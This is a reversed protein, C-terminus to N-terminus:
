YAPRWSSLAYVIRGKWGQLLWHGDEDIVFDKHYSLKVRNRAIRMVEKDVPLQEFGARMNRVQWQKYTEPREIREAAECAIVNMAERGFVTKELLMREHIERPINADLMDFFSSYHFLAERFRTIFFPANYAGNVVGLVFVAPNMKRILNLVINRPSNVIVTEDLLNRFRYLCNVVLLEDEKIKLDELKITEWKQAIANFEFPVKFTEAYSALRRGTEEVRESPRFGPCPLDIGTVRLKPPGGPRSSLRQLFCPWQFGYLIGFDIIHLKTVKEAVNMITKNSFFNSIKRFPCTALYIHYAKLIDAASTPMNILSTYIQTGSGAMRAELGDAFYHALRQMGDGTPTAHQRIQKLFDNATRRDDAAVAQACLTLLTRMDVVNRKGGKKKAGSKGGNSGKSQDNQPTSKTVENLAKRLDSENKGGSCLLVKDFMDPSVTSETYVASQKNSREDHLSMSDQYPNKKGRSGDVFEVNATKKEVKVVLSVSGEKQEKGSLEDYGLDVILNSGNPLFKSAEEVGKKFQIASLGDTFVDPIRLTSVPSDIPGEIITGSSSSSSYSSQSTSVVDVADHHGYFRNSNLDFNWDPCFTETDGSGCCDNSVGFIKEDPSAFSHALKPVHEYDASAPYKEGIVEYFSREAAQLAASEQFMCAKEEVDEEMLIHNIYKLVVDSFDLDEPSEGEASQVQADFNLHSSVPIVDAHSGTLFKNSVRVNNILNQGPFLPIAQKNLIIGSTPGGYDRYNQDM